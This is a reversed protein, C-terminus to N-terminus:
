GQELLRRLDIVGANARAIYSGMVLSHNSWLGFESGNLIMPSHIPAQTAELERVIQRVSMVANKKKLIPGFDQEVARFFHILAWCSGRAEFFVDDIESWPTAVSVIDPSPTAQRAAEDGSLDTNLRVQGVSASLRQSLSGLRKNVVGLWNALNDARAFFQTTTAQADSLSDLYARLNRIAKRYQSESSPFLWRNADFQLLPDAAALAKVETSQSQSRSFDDRLVRVLDRSQVLVGFEWNPMNDMFVGPPFRDNHLYGGPKDLLHEVVGILSATTIYGTVRTAAQNGALNEAYAHVDFREPEASFILMGSVIAALIFGFAVASILFTRKSPIQM